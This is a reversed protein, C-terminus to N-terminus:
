EDDDEDYYEEADLDIDEVGQYKPDDYMKYYGENPMLIRFDPYKLLAFTVEDQNPMDCVVFTSSCAGGINKFTSHKFENLGLARHMASGWKTIIRTIGKRLNRLRARDHITIPSISAENDDNIQLLCDKVKISGKTHPNDPTEKTSWPVNCEVHNVYYTEGHFKLVWM